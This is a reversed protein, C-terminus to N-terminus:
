IKWYLKILNKNTEITRKIFNRKKLYKNKKWNPFFENLYSFSDNLFKESLSKNKQYKQQLNYRSLLQVNLYELEDKIYKSEKFLNNTMALIKLIDFVRKDMSTTESNSHIVYYYLFSNQKVTKKSNNLANVVFPVDEYKLNEAFGITLIERSFLKGCPGLPITILQTQNEKLSGDSFIISESKKVDVDNFVRYMDCIVLDSNKNIATNYMIELADQAIYDDSDVFFVYDGKAHKLGLNRAMGIGNNKTSIVKLKKSYKKLYMDLIDKSNDQSGDNIVIIQIDKLTQNVLSDMCKKLYKESNYVPVIVSVKIRQNNKM